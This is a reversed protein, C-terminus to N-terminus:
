WVLNRLQAQSHLTSGSHYCHAGLHHLMKIYVQSRGLESLTDDLQRTVASIRADQHRLREQSMSMAQMYISSLISGQGRALMPRISNKQLQESALMVTTYELLYALWCSVSWLMQAHLLWTSHAPPAKQTM